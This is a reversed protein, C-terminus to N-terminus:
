EEKAAKSGRRGDSDSRGSRGRKGGKKKLKSQRAEQVVKIYAQEEEGELLALELAKEGSMVPKNKCGAMAAAADSADEFRIHGKEWGREFDVFGVVGYVGFEEKLFERNCDAAAGEFRIVCGLPIKREEAQKAAAEEAAKAKAIKAEEREKKRQEKISARWAKNTQVTLKNGEFELESIAAVKEAEAEDKLEVLASAPGEQADGRDRIRVSLVNAHQAFFDKLASWQTGKPVPTVHISRAAVVDELPIAHRRKIKTKDESIEYVDNEVALVAGLDEASMDPCLQKLRNFTLLVSISVMGDKDAEAQSRLFRDRPYNSDSFYFQVQKRIDDENKTM